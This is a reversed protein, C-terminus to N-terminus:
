ETIIIDGISQIVLGLGATPLGILFSSFLTVILAEVPDIGKGLTLALALMILLTLFICSSLGFVLGYLQGKKVRNISQEVM